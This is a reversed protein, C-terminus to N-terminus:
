PRVLAYGLRTEVHGGNCTPDISVFRYSDSDCRMLMVTASGSPPAAFVYGELGLMQMGDCHVDLSLFHDHPAAFCGYLPRVNNEPATLVYAVAGEPTYSPPVASSDTTVWRDGFQRNDFRNLALTEPADIYRGTHADYFIAYNAKQLYPADSQVLSRFGPSFILLCGIPADTYKYVCGEHQQQSTAFVEGWYFGVINVAVMSLCVCTLVIGQLWAYGILITGQSRSRPLRQTGNEVRARLARLSQVGLVCLSVSWLTSFVQYRAATAEATGYVLRGYATIGASLFAFLALEVWLVYSAIRARAFWLNGLTFLFYALSALGIIAFPVNLFGFPGGLYILVFAIVNAISIHVGVPLPGSFHYSYTGVYFYAGWIAAALMVWAATKRYGAALMHPLFAIWVVLGTGFSLSAVTSGLVALGWVRWSMPDPAIDRRGGLWKPLWRRLGQWSIPQRALARLCIIAGCAAGYMALQSPQFWSEFNSYTLMLLCIPVLLVLAARASRLTLYVTWLLLATYAVVVVLDFTMMVQRNWHTLEILALDILDPIVIRHGNHPAWVEALPLIGQDFRKVWPVWWWEDLYPVDSTWRWIGYLIAAIQILPVLFPLPALLAALRDLLASRKDAAQRIGEGAASTVL